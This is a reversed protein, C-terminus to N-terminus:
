TELPKKFTSFIEQNSPEQFWICSQQNKSFTESSM